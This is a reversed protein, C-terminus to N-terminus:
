LSNYDGSSTATVHFPHFWLVYCLSVSLSLCSTVKPLPSSSAGIIVSSLPVKFSHLSSVKAGSTNPPLADIRESM